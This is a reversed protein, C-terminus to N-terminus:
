EGSLNWSELEKIFGYATMDITTPTVAIYSHSLAWRDTQPDGPEFNIFEGTLKYFKKNKETKEIEWEGSWMGDTQRCVKIGKFEPIAPFNVNLCVKHPLGNNLVTETIHLIYPKLPSFDAEKDHNCLSYGISPIGKLCGEIVLGMTGSNHVNISSNDGHNIGGIVLDPKREGLLYTALKICDAPMGSCQNMVLGEERYVECYEVLKGTTIACSMGSRAGEPAMVYLDGLPRLYNILQRIGKADIGDDNSILILPKKMRM